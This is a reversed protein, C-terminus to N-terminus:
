LGEFKYQPVGKPRTQFTQDCLVPSGSFDVFPRLRLHGWMDWNRRLATERTEASTTLTSSASLARDARSVLSM